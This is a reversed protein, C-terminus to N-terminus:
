SGMLLKGSEYELAKIKADSRRNDWNRLVENKAAHDKEFKVKMTHEWSEMGELVEEEDEWDDVDGQSHVNRPKWKGPQM